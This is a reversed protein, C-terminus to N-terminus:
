QGASPGGEQRDKLGHPARKQHWQQQEQGLAPGGEQRDKLGHPTMTPHDQLDRQQHRGQPDELGRAHHHEHPDKLGRAHQHFEQPDELDPAYLLEQRSRGEAHRQQSDDGQRM